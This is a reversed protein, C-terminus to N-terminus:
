ILDVKVYWELVNGPKDEDLLNARTFDLYRHNASVALAFDANSITLRPAALYDIVSIADRTDTFPQRSTVFNLKINYSGTKLADLYIRAVIRGHTEPINTDAPLNPVIYADYYRPSIDSFIDGPALLDNTANAATIIKEKFEGKYYMVYYSWNKGMDEASLYPLPGESNANNSLDLAIYYYIDNAVPKALDIYVTLVKSRPPVPAAPAYRACGHAFVLAATMLAFRGIVSRAAAKNGTM